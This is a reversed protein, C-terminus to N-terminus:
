EMLVFTPVSRALMTGDGVPPTGWCLLAGDTRIGCSHWAGAEIRVFTHGGAVLTPTLRDTTTGDGLAGDWNSGWCFGAGDDTVGCTHAWGASIATMTHGGAVATPVLREIASNDGVQGAENDGWCYTVGTTTIGCSHRLGTVLSAFSLGGSVPTPVSRFETTGDGLQGTFNSGWCYGLRANTVGCGHSDGLAISAFSVSPGVPLLWGAGWCHATGAVIGCTAPWGASIDAFTLGGAVAVPALRDITTGDGLKGYSNDGWCYAQGSATLACTHDWTTITTFSHGGAVRAPTLYEEGFYGTGLVGRWNFGWCFAQGSLDLACAHGAELTVALARFPRRVLVDANGQVGEATATIMVAGNDLGTVMGSPSVRAIDPDSSVWFVTRSTLTHGGTDTLRASFQQPQGVALTDSAPSVEVLAVPEPPGAPESCGGFALSVSIACLSVRM